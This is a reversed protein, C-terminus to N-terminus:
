GRRYAEEMKKRLRPDTGAREIAKRYYEISRESAGTKRLLLATHFLIEPHDPERKLGEALFEGAAAYRGAMLHAYGATDLAFGRRGASTLLRGCLDVARAAQRNDSLFVIYDNLAPLYRPDLAMAKEYHRVIEDAPRGLAIACDALAHQIWANDPGGGKRYAELHGVATAFDGRAHLSRAINMHLFADKPDALLGKRAVEEAAAWAGARLYTTSLGRAANVNKGDRRLIELYLKEALLDNGLANAYVAAHLLTEPNEPALRVADAIARAAMEPRGLQIAIHARFLKLRAAAPYREEAASVRTLAGAFDGRALAARIDAEVASPLADGAAPGAPFADGREERSLIRPLFVMALALAAISIGSVALIRELRRTHLEGMM